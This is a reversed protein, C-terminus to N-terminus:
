NVQQSVDNVVNIPKSNKIAKLSDILELGLGYSTEKTNFGIHPTAITNQNVNPNV